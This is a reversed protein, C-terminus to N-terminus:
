RMAYKLLVQFNPTGLGTVPDWGKVADFGPCDGDANNGKVVDYYSDKIDAVKYLFPNIFGMPSKGVKLREGNLLSVMGGFTPASCSTGDISNVYGNLMVQFGVGVTSLDPLARGSTNFYSTPPVDGSKLYAAIFKQQWSPTGFDNSFGGTSFTAGRESYTKGDDNLVLHTSGLFTAWPTSPYPFEFKTGEDNCGVGDDGSAVLITVGRLGLKMFENSIRDVIKIPYDGGYQGYSISQVLPPKPDNILDMAYHYFAKFVDSEAYNYYYTPSFPSTSMIYQVDLSAEDDAEQLKPGIFKAIKQSKLNPAYQEFFAKLDSELIGEGMEFVAQTNNVKTSTPTLTINYRQKIVQPTIVSVDDKLKQSFPSSRLKPNPFGHIPTVFDVIENLSSPIYYEREARVITANATPHFFSVFSTKLMKEATKIPAFFSIHGGSAEVRYQNTFSSIWKTVKEVSSPLPSTLEKLEDFSLHQGYISSDPDSISTALRELVNLNREKLAITFKHIKKADPLDDLKKWGYNRKSQYHIPNGQECNVLSILFIIGFIALIGFNKIM